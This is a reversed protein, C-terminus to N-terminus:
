VVSSKDADWLYSFFGRMFLAIFLSMCKMENNQEDHVSFLSFGILGAVIDGFGCCM